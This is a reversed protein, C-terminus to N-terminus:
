VLQSSEWAAMVESDEHMVGLLMLAHITTHKTRMGARVPSMVAAYMGQTSRMAAAQEWVLPPSEWAAMVDIDAHM